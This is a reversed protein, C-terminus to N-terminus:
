TPRLGPRTSSCSGNPISTPSAMSGTMGSVWFTQATRSLRMALRKQAENAAIAPVDADFKWADQIRRECITKDTRPDDFNIGFRPGLNAKIRDIRANLHADPFDLLAYGREHLGAALRGEIDTLGM